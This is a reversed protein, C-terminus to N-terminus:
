RLCEADIVYAPFPKGAWSGIEQSLDVVPTLTEGNCTLAADDTVFLVPGTLDAPLAKKQQYYHNPAGKPPTAYFTMDSDAGTFFFDALIGRHKGVIVTLGEARATAIADHTIDAVNVYRKALPQGKADTILTPFLTMLPIAVCVVANLAIGAWLTRIRGRDLAFLLAAITAAPIAAFAWNAYARSMFAQILVITWVPISFWILARQRGPAPARLAAIWLVMFVPGFVLFQSAIFEFARPLSPKPGASEAKLWAANDMTHSVTTLDNAFNWLINPSAAALFALAYLALLGARPRMSPIILYAILAGPLFYIAAYKSLFACGLLLGGLIADRATGGACLRWYFLLAGALFPAMITDTSILFSGVAVIPLSLYAMAVWLGAMRHAPALSQAWAGLILATIGHFLPAPLRVTFASRHIALEDFLRLVWGIMPPKSYYGFDFNQGWLWYQSEDVYLDTPSGWLAVVRLLTILGVAVLTPKLWDRSEALPM